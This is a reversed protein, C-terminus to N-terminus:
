SSEPKVPPMEPTCIPIMTIPCQLPIGSFTSSSTANVTDCTSTACVLSQTYRSQPCTISSYNTVYPTFRKQSCMIYHRDFNEMCRLNNLKIIKQCISCKINMENVVECGQYSQTVRSMFAELKMQQMDNRQVPRDARLDLRLQFDNTSKDTKKPKMKCEQPYSGNITCVAGPFELHECGNDLDIMCPVTTSMSLNSIASQLLRRHGLKMKLESKLDEDSLLNLIRPSTVGERSFMCIYRQIEEEDADDLFVMRLWEQLDFKEKAGEGRDTQSQPSNQSASPIATYAGGSTMESAM